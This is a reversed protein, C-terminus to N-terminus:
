QLVELLKKDRKSLGRTWRRLAKNARKSLNDQSQQSREHQVRRRQTDKQWDIKSM